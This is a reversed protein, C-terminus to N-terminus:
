TEIAAEDVVTQLHSFLSLFVHEIETYLGRVEEIGGELANAKFRMRKSVSNISMSLGELTSYSRLWDHEIMKSTVLQMRPPMLSQSQQLGYYSLKTFDDFELQSFQHWHKILFYDFAIDTIIGAFRRRSSSFRRKLQKVPDFQDTYKDVLRHNDIGLLVANPLADYLEDSPKFDGM